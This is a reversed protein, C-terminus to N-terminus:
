VMIWVLEGPDVFRYGDLDVIVWGTENHMRLAFEEAVCNSGVGKWPCL